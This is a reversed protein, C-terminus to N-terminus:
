ILGERRAQAIYRLAQREEVKFAAQIAALRGGEPVSQHIQAIKSLFEPTIRRRSTARKVANVAKQGKLTYEDSGDPTFAGIGVVSYVEHMVRDLKVAALDKARIPSGSSWLKISTAGPVDDSVEFVIEVNGKTYTLVRFTYGDGMPVDTDDTIEVAGGGPLKITMGKIEIKRLAM